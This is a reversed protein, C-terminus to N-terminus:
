ILLKVAQCSKSEAIATKIASFVFVLTSLLKIVCSRNLIDTGELIGVLEGRLGLFFYRWETWTWYSYM